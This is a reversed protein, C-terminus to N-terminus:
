HHKLRADRTVVVTVILCAVWALLLPGYLWPHHIMQALAKPLIMAGSVLVVVWCLVSRVM